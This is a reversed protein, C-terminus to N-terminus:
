RPNRLQAVEFKAARVRELAVYYISKSNIRTANLLLEEARDYNGRAEDLVALNYLAPASNPSRAVADSFAAHAGDFRGQDCLEVGPKTVPDTTDLEVKDWVRVPQLDEIFVQAVKRSARLIAEAENPANVSAWYTDTFIRPADKNKGDLLELRIHLTGSGSGRQLPPPGRYKWETPIVRVLTDAGSADVLTFQSQQLGRYLETRVPEVAMEPQIVQGQTFALVTNAAETLNPGGPVPPAAEVQVGIKRDTSLNVRAPRTREIRINHACGSTIVLASVVLSFRSFPQFM